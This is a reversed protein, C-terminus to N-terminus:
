VPIEYQFTCHIKLLDTATEKEFVAKFHSNSLHLLLIHKQICLPFYFSSLAKTELFIISNVGPRLSRSALQAVKLYLNLVLVYTNIIDIKRNLFELLHWFLSSEVVWKRSGVGWSERCNPLNQEM